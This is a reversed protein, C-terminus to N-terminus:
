KESLFFNELNFESFASAEFSTDESFIKWFSEKIETKLIKIQSIWETKKIQESKNIQFKDYIVKATRFSIQEIFDYLEEQEDLGNESIYRYLSNKICDQIFLCGNNKAEEISSDSSDAIGSFLLLDDTFSYIQFNPEIVSNNKNTACSILTFCLFLLLIYIKKM